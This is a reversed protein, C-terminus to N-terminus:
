LAIRSQAREDLQVISEVRVMLALPRSKGYPVFYEDSGLLQEPLTLGSGHAGPRYVMRARARVELILIGDFTLSAASHRHLM